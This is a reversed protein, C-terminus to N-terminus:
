EKVASRFDPPVIWESGDHFTITTQKGSGKGVKVVSESKDAEDIFKEIYTDLADRARSKDELPEAQEYRLFLSLFREKKLLSELEKETQNSEAKSVVRQGTIRIVTEYAGIGAGFAALLTGLFWVMTNKEITEKFGM